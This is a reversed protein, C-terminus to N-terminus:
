GAYSGSLSFSSDWLLMAQLVHLETWQKKLPYFVFSTLTPSTQIQHRELSPFLLPQAQITNCHSTIVWFFLTWHLTQSCWQGSFCGARQMIEQLSPLWHPPVKSLHKKVLSPFVLLAQDENPSVIVPQREWHSEKVEIGPGQVVNEIWLQRKSEQALILLDAASRSWRNKLKEKPAEQKKEDRCVTIRRWDGFKTPRITEAWVCLTLTKREEWIMRRISRWNWTRNWKLYVWLSNDWLRIILGILKQLNFVWSHSLPCLGGQYYYNELLPPQEMTLCNQDGTIPFTWKSCFLASIIITVVLSYLPNLPLPSIPQILFVSPLM